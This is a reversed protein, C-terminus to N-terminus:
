RGQRGALLESSKTSAALLGKCGGPARSGRGGRQVLQGTVRSCCWSLLGGAGQDHWCGVGSGLVLEETDAPPDCGTYFEVLDLQFTPLGRM